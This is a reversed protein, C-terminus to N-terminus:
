KHNLLDVQGSASLQDFFCFTHRYIHTLMSVCVACTLSGGGGWVCVPQIFDADVNNPFVHKEQCIYHNKIDRMNSQSGILAISQDQQPDSQSSITTSCLMLRHSVLRLIDSLSIQSMVVDSGHGQLSKVLFSGVSQRPKVVKLSM